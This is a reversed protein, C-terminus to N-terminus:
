HYAIMIYDAVMAPRESGEIEMVCGCVMRVAGNKQEDLENLSLKLRVREGAKVANTFRLKDVGYNIWRKAGKVEFIEELLANVLSLTFFGHAIIGGYPTERKAREVDSHVWHSNRTIRGFDIIMSETIEVWTSTGLEKGKWPALELANEVVIM